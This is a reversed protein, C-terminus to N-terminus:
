KKKNKALCCYVTIVELVFVCINSIDAFINLVEVIIYGSM